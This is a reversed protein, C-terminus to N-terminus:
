KGQEDMADPEGGDSDSDNPYRFTRRLRATAGGGRPNSMTATVIGEVIHTSSARPPLTSLPPPPPRSSPADFPTSSLYTTYTSARPLQSPPQLHTLSAATLQLLTPSTVNPLHRSHRWM